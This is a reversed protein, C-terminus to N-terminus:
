STRRILIALGADEATHVSAISGIGSYWAGSGNSTSCRWSFKSVSRWFGVFGHSLCWLGSIPRGRDFEGRRPYWSGQPGHIRLRPAVSGVWCGPKPRERFRTHERGHHEGGACCFRALGGPLFRRRDHFRYDTFFRLRHTYRGGYPTSTFANDLSVPFSWNGWPELSGGDLSIAAAIVVALHGSATVWDARRIKRTSEMLFRRTIRKGVVLAALTTLLTLVLVPLLSWKVGAMPALIASVAVVSVTIAPAMAVLTFGRARGAWAIAAGPAFVIAAAVLFHPVINLLPM